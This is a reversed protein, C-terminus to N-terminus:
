LSGREGEKGGTETEGKRLGVCVKEEEREGDREEGSDLGVICM